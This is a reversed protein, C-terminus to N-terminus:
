GSGEMQKNLLYEAVDEHGKGIALDRATFSLGNHIATAWMDAGGVQVLYVVVELHGEFAAIHLPRLGHESEM